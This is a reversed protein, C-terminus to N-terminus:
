LYSRKITKYAKKAATNLKKFICTRWKVRYNFNLIMNKYGFTISGGDIVADYYATPNYKFVFLKYPSAIRDVIHAMIYYLLFTNFVRIVTEYTIKKFVVQESSHKMDLYFSDPTIIVDKYNQKLVSYIVKAM